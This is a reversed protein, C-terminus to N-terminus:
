ERTTKYGSEEDWDGLDHFRRGDDLLSAMSPQPGPHPNVTIPGLLREDWDTGATFEEDDPYQVEDFDKM